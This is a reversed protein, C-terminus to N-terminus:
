SITYATVTYDGVPEGSLTKLTICREEGPLLSFYNDSCVGDCEIEVAHVYKNARVTVSNEERSVIELSATCNTIPLAGHRYFTRDTGKKSEIECVIIEDEALTFPLVQKTTNYGTADLSSSFTDTIQGNKLKYANLKVPLTEEKSNSVTAVIRNKEDSLSVVLDSACRRFAYFAAKPTCFYDVFAWGLAAPWCDDFMWFVLGNCYGINRRLNEFVVRVWEYQMYKYKFYRDEGDQAAGFIKPALASVSDYLERPLDPNGKTHYRLMEEASDNLDDETMIRMLSKRSIAGFTPEEAIFRATFQSFYEKYDKCSEFYFYDFMQCVFNTNHTTGVTWSAYPYGGYPSSPLFQRTRDKEFIANALGSLAASRGRYDEQTDDGFTANENDGSWWALCPHNRFLKVAHESEIKLKDIFWQEKEPYTGCAMLFDQTVLIGARDCCEYFYPNEFIGGGWVRLMNVRMEKALAILKDFKEPTEASPFPESPVWNAGHCLIKKGNVIVQFGRYEKNSDVLEENIVNKQLEKALNYYESGEKDPLQLIKLTRIGFSESQVNDGTKVVLTYIPQEGYGLPYWLQPNEIDFRRVTRPEKCYFETGAVREGNPSLVSVAVPAGNSYNKFELDVCIQASYKDISETAIYASEVCLDSGYEIYVPRYIGATVFRDVWDWGYTCQIRRTRLRERTFAAVNQPLGEVEKVASRFMVKLENGSSKLKGDVCFRYPVFMDDAEGIKEGNLYIDCYTDLGEFVLTANKDTEADFSCTYTFDEDEIWTYNKNNDRWYLDKIHGSAMLDTHVCGPVSASLEGVRENQLKWGKDLIVKKM